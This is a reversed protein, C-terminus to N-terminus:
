GNNVDGCWSSSNGDLMRAGWILTGQGAFSRTTNISKGQTTVNLDDQDGHSITLTSSDVGTM